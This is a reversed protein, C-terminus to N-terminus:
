FTLNKVGTKNILLNNILQLTASDVQGTVQLKNQSQITSIVSQTQTGYYGTASSIGYGLSILATQLNTVNPSSIGYYLPLQSITLPKKNIILSFDKENDFNNITINDKTFAKIIYTGSTSPIFSYLSSSNYDKVQVLSGDKYLEYRYNVGATSGGLINSTLNITTGEYMYGSAKVSSFTPLPYINFELTQKSDYNAQSLSDKVYVTSAYKGIDDSNISFTGDSTFDRTQVLTGDKTIEYKYLYGLGTGDKATANFSITKQGILTKTLNETFTNINAVPIAQINVPLYQIDDYDKDSYLDKIKVYIQYNGSVSPNFIFQANSSYESENMLNSDKLVGFKFQYQGSGGQGAATYNVTQGLFIQNSNSNYTSVKATPILNQIQTGNYYFTLIQNYTQGLAARQKAGIQSMGLGHGYGKGSFTYIGSISDYTLNWMASQLGLFTRCADLTLSKTKTAGTSNKYIINLNSVRGTIDKTISTLDLKVFTDTSVLYGKSKLKSSIDANTFTKNGLSWSANDIVQGNVVDPKAVLYPLSYGWVNKVDEEYGGHSASFLAEVLQDNYTLIQGKTLDVAKNVNTDTALYGYYVQYNPTDDFDYGQAACAAEHKLAYTRAAVAQAKLSEIPFYDSMEHGVVGKLYNEMSLSDIPLIKGNTVQFTISGAYNNTETGNSIILLNSDSKPTLAFSSYSKGNVVLNGNTISFNLLTGSAISSGNLLYDGSLKVTMTSNSIRVLGIKLNKFYDLNQYAQVRGAYQFSLLSFIFMGTILKTVFIFRKRQM